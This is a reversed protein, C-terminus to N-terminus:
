RVLYMLVQKPPVFPKHSDVKMDNKSTQDITMKHKIGMEITNPEYDYTKYGDSKENIADFQPKIFKNSQNMIHTIPGCNKQREHPYRKPYESDDRLLSKCKLETEALSSRILDLDFSNMNSSSTMNTLIYM